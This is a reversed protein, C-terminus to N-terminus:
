IQDIQKIVYSQLIIAFSHHLPQFQFQVIAWNHM